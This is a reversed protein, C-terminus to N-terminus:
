STSSPSSERIEDGKRVTGEQLVRAYWGRRGLMVKLFDPGKEDGVYPLLYLNDCPTCARSIQILVEDGIRFKKAPTLESYPIGSTTINEGIDGPKIPWGEKNVEAITELPMLLVASDPDDSLIEHRYVNYDGELGEKLIRVNDVSRKPLGRSGPNKGKINIQHISGKMLM